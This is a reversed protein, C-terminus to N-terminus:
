EFKKQWVKAVLVLVFNIIMATFLLTLGNYDPTEKVIELRYAVRFEYLQYCMLLFVVMLIIRLSSNNGKSDQMIKKGM